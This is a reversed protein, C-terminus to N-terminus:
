PAEPDPGLGLAVYLAITDSAYDRQSQALSTRAQSVLRERDLVDLATVDGRSELLKRSLDLAEANLAVVRQTRQVALRSGAVAALGTEVDEVASLVSLRWNLYAEEATAHAVDAEAQLRPLSLLPLSLGLTSSHSTGTLSDLPASITGSLSLSPYFAARAQGLDGLAAAYQAEAGRIDPRRRVLDAPIGIRGPTALVPQRGPYALNIGLTGAPQGLLTAIKGEQRASAAALQPLRAETEAVLAEASVIDLRTAAGLKMQAKLSDLTTHRSALDLRSQAMQAQAFRLDVYAQTLEGLLQLRANAAGYRAAAVRASAAAVASKHRGGFPSANIALEGAATDSYHTHDVSLSFSDSLVAGNARANGEAERVRVAAIQLSVNQALGQAVLQDLVPDHFGHWWTTLAADPRPPPAVHSYRAPLEMRAAPLPAGGDCGALVLAAAPAVRGLGRWLGHLHM